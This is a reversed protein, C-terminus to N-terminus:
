SFMARHGAVAATLRTFYVTPVATRQWGDGSAVGFALALPLAVIATTLGGFVDNMLPSRQAAGDDISQTSEAAAGASASACVHLLQRPQARPGSRSCNMAAYSHAQQRLRSRQLRQRHQVCRPMCAPTEPKSLRHSVPVLGLEPVSSTMMDPLM